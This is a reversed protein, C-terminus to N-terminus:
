TVTEIGREDKEEHNDGQELSMKRRATEPLYWAHEAEPSKYKNKERGPITKVSNGGCFSRQEFMM